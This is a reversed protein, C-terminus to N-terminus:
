DREKEWMGQMTVYISRFILWMDMSFSYYRVYAIDWKLREPLPPIKAAYLQALGTLGPRVLLRHTGQFVRQITDLEEPILPRPGVFSMQGKLIHILQPLEDLATGRLWQSWPSLIKGDASMTRFKLIEFAIGRYGIRKQRYFVPLGYQLRLRCAIFLFPIGFLLFGFGSLVADFFRKGAARYFTM